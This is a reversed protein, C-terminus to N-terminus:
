ACALRIRISGRPLANTYAWGAQLHFDTKTLRSTLLEDPPRAM